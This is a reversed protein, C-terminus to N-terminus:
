ARAIFMFSFAIVVFRLACTDPYPVSSFKILINDSQRRNWIGILSMNLYTGQPIM